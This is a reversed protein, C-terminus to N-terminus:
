RDAAAQAASGIGTTRRSWRHSVQQRRPATGRLNVLVVGALTIALGVLRERAGIPQGLVPVAILATVPPVLYLLGSVGAGTGRRLLAFLLLM